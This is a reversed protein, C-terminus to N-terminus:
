VQREAHTIVRYPNGKQSVKSTKLRGQVTIKDGVEVLPELVNTNPKGPTAVCVETNTEEVWTKARGSVHYCVVAFPGGTAVTRSAAPTKFYVTGEDTDLAIDLYFELQEGQAYPSVRYPARSKLECKTITGTIEIM